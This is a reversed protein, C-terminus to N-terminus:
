KCSAVFGYSGNPNSNFGAQGTILGSPSINLFGTWDANPVSVSEFTGNVYILNGGAMVGANSIGTMAPDLTAWQGKSYVFGHTAYDFTNYSGVVVGKDSVGTPYTAQAGPYDLKLYGGRRNRRFGRHAGSSDLYTGVIVGYNNIAAPRTASTGQKPFVISTLAAGRLMFGFYQDSADQYEGVSTGYDNRGNFKTTNAGPYSYYKTVGDSFRIFAVDYPPTQGSNIAEGVVTGHDNIGTDGPRPTFNFQFVHFKCSAQTQANLVPLSLLCAAFILSIRIRGRSQSM